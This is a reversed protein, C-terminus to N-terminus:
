ERRKKFKVRLPHAHLGNYLLICDFRTFEIDESCSTKKRIIMIDFFLSTPMFYIVELVIDSNERDFM